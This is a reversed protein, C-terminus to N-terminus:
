VMSYLEEATFSGEGRTVRRYAYYDKWLIKAHATDEAWKNILHCATRPYGGALGLNILALDPRGQRGLDLISSKLKIFGYM